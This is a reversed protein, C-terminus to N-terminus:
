EKRRAYRYKIIKSGITLIATGKANEFAEKADLLTEFRQPIKAESPAILKYLGKTDQDETM